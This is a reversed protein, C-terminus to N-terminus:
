DFKGCVTINIDEIDNFMVRSFGKRVETLNNETVFNTQLWGVYKKDFMENKVPKIDTLKVEQVIMNVWNDYDGYETRVVDDKQIEYFKKVIPKDFLKIKNM